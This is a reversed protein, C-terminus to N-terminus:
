YTGGVSFVENPGMNNVGCSTTGNTLNTAGVTGFCATTQATGGVSAPTLQFGSGNESTSANRIFGYGNATNYAAGNYGVNYGHVDASRGGARTAKTPDPNDSHCYTCGYRLFVSMSSSGSNSFASGTSHNTATSSDYGNHCKVCLTTANTSAVAGTRWVVGRLEVTNQSNANATIASGHATVTLTITGTASDATHCDWCTMLYGWSTTNGNTKAINWPAVMRTGQTYSNNQKGKIPHYARNTTAFHTDVDMVRGAPMNATTANFPNTANGGPAVFGASAGNADHCHLCQNIMISRAQIEIVNSTLNRSFRVLRNTLTANANLATGSSTYAGPNAGNHTADQIPNGSDPDRLDIYGNMHYTPNTKGTTPNGEMHCVACDNNTVGGTKSRVHNSAQGFEAVVNRRTTVTADITQAVSTNITGNHCDVCGATGVGWQPTPNNAGHCSINSCTGTVPNNVQTIPSTKSYSGSKITALMEISGNRHDTTAPNVHCVSCATQINVAHAEHSGVFAGDPVNRASGDPFSTADGHCRGCTVTSGWVPLGTGTVGASKINVNDVACLRYSYGGAAPTVKHTYSLGTGSYAVTGSNCDVPATAGPSFRLEYYALGSQADTAATWTLSNQDTGPTVTLSGGTPGTKDMTKSASTGGNANQGGTSTGRIDVFVVDGSTIAGGNSYTSVNTATCTYTPGTGTLTGAIWTDTSICESASKVCVQCATVPSEFDALDGHFNFPSGMFTTYVPSDITVGSTVPPTTDLRSYAFSFNQVATTTLATTLQAGTPTTWNFTPSAATFVMRRSLLINTGNLYNGTLMLTDPTITDYDSDVWSLGNTAGVGTTTGATGLWASTSSNFVNYGITGATSTQAVAVGYEVGGVTLWQGTAWHKQPTAAAIMTIALSTQANWSGGSWIYGYIGATGSRVAIAMIQNTRPNSVLYLQQMARQTGPMTGVAADWGTAPNHTIFANIAAGQQSWALVLEGSLSEYALGFNDYQILGPNAATTPMAANLTIPVEDGWATGNWILATLTGTNLAGTGTDQAMLAIENTGPRSALKISGVGQAGTLRASNINAAATWAAGDWIRYAMENGTSGAANTSYVVMARGSIEYDIDFRRGNVGNGGVTVNWENSWTTGNWRMIYLVGGTTVYGVINETRTNASRNVMFSPIAGAVTAAAAAFTNSSATFDSKQPTTTNINFVALGNTTGTAESRGPQILGFPMVMSVIVAFILVRHVNALWGASKISRMANMKMSVEGLPNKIGYMTGNKKTM